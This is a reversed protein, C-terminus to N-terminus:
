NNVKEAEYKKKMHAIASLHQVTLEARSAAARNKADLSPQLQGQFAPVVYRAIM